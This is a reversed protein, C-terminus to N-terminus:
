MKKMEAKETKAKEKAEDEAAAIKTSKKHGSRKDPRM